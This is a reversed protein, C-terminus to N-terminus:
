GTNLLCFQSKLRLPPVAYKICAESQLATCHLATCNLATCHLATGVPPSTKGVKIGSRGQQKLLVNEPKM